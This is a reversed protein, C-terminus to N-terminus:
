LAVNIDSKTMLNHSSNWKEQDYQSTLTQPYETNSTTSKQEDSYYSTSRLTFLPQDDFARLDTNITLQKRKDSLYPSTNSNEQHYFLSSVTRLNKEAFASNRRNETISGKQSVGNFPSKTPSGNNQLSHLYSFDLSKGRKKHGSFMLKGFNSDNNSTKMSETFTMETSHIPSLSDSLNSISLKKGLRKFTKNRTPSTPPSLMTSFNNQSNLYNSMQSNGRNHSISGMGSGAHSKQRHHIGTGSSIISIISKTPSHRTNIRSLDKSCIETINSSSLNQNLGNELLQSEDNNDKDNLDTLYEDLQSITDYNEYPLDIQTLNMKHGLATKPFHFHSNDLISSNSNDDDLEILEQKSFNFAPLLLNDQLTEARKMFKSKDSNWMDLTVNGPLNEVSLNFQKYDKQTPVPEEPFMPIQSISQLDNDELIKDDFSFNDYHHDHVFNEPSNIEDVTQLKNSASELLEPILGPIFGQQQLVPAECPSLIPPLLASNIRKLAQREVEIKAEKELAVPNCEDLFKDARNMNVNSELILSSMRKKETLYSNTDSKENTEANKNVSDTSTYKSLMDRQMDSIASLKSFYKFNKNSKSIKNQVLNSHIMSTKQAQTADYNKSGKLIKSTSIFFSSCFNKTKDKRSVESAEEIKSPENLNKQPKLHSSSLKTRLVSPFSLNGSSERTNIGSQAPIINYNADLNIQKGNRLNKVDYNSGINNNEGFNALDMDPTLTQSSIKLPISPKYAQQDHNYIKEYDPTIVGKDEGEKRTCFSKVANLSGINIGNIFLSFILLESFGIYLRQELSNTLYSSDNTILNKLSNNFFEVASGLILLQLLLFLERNFSFYKNIRKSRQITSLIDFINTIGYIISSCAIIILVCRNPDYKKALSVAVAGLAISLLSSLISVVAAITRQHM